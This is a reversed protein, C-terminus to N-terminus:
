NRAKLCRDATLLSQAGLEESELKESEVREMKIVRREPQEVLITATSAYIFPQRQLWAWAGGVGVAIILLILWLRGLILYYYRKFNAASDQPREPPRLTPKPLHMTLLRFDPSLERLPPPARSASIASEMFRIFTEVVWKITSYVSITSNRSPIAALRALYIGYDAPTGVRDLVLKEFVDPLQLALTRNGFVFHSQRCAPALWLIKRTAVPLVLIRRCGFVGPLRNSSDHLLIPQPPLVFCAPGFWVSCVFRSCARPRYAIDSTSNRQQLSPHEAGRGKKKRSGGFTPEEVNQTPPFVGKIPQAGGFGAGSAAAPTRPSRPISPGELKPSARAPLNKDTHLCINKWFFALKSQATPPFHDLALHVYALSNFIQSSKRTGARLKGARSASLERSERDSRKRRDMGQCALFNIVSFFGDRSRWNAAHLVEQLLAPAGALDTCALEASPRM